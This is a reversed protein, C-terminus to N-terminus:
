VIKKLFEALMESNIGVKEYIEYGIVGNTSIALIGTYKKFM